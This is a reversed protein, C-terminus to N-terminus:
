ESFSMKTKCRCASGTGISTSWSRCAPFIPWTSGNRKLSHHGQHNSPYLHHDAQSVVAGGKQFVVVSNETYSGGGKSKVKKWAKGFVLAESKKWIWLSSLFSIYGNELEFENIEFIGIDFSGSPKNVWGDLVLVTASFNQSWLQPLGRPHYFPLIQPLAPRRPTPEESLLEGVRQESHKRFVINLCM